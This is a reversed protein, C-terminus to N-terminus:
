LCPLPMYSPSEIIIQMTPINKQPQSCLQNPMIYDVHTLGLVATYTQDECQKKTMLEMCYIHIGWKGSTCFLLLSCHDIKKHVWHKGPASTCLIIDTCHQTATPHRCISQTTRFHDCLEKTHPHLRVLLHLFLNICLKDRLGFSKIRLTYILSNM